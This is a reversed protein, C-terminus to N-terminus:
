RAELAARVRETSARRVYFAATSISAWGALEQLVWPDGCADATETLATHRLAHAGRGDGAAHKVGCSRMWRGVLSGVHQASLPAWPRTYSRILPGSTSPHETLYDAIAHEIDPMLPLRRQHGGKETVHMTRGVFDIDEVRLGDVGCCRLGAGYCLQVILRARADPVNELLESTDTRPMPRPAPPPRRPLRLEALADGPVLKRRVMWAAFVRVTSLYVARTSPRWEPHQGSWREVARLGFQTLPRAGFSATFSALTYGVRMASGRSLEGRNTREAIYTAAHTRLTM